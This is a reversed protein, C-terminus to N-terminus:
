AIVDSSTMNTAGRDAATARHVHINGSVTRVRVELGASPPATDSHSALDTVTRGSVTNLDLWVGTGPAVGVAVDGSATRVRARGTVLSGVTIRGSATSADLSGAGSAIVVDGSATGVMVDGTVDAVDVRGSASKLQASGGVRGASLDGSASSLRLDGLLDSIRASASALTLHVHRFLGSTRVEASASDGAVSSGEPLRVTIRLAPTRRWFRRDSAPAAVILTDGDLAVRTNEAAQAAAPDDGLPVVEVQVSEHPGAHIEVTGASARLSLTVPETRDFQYM